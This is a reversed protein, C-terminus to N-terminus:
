ECYFGFVVDKETVEVEVEVVEVVGVGGVEEVTHAIQTEGLKDVIGGVGGAVSQVRDESGAVMNLYLWTM